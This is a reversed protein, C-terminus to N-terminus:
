AAEKHMPQTVEAAVALFSGRDTMQAQALADLAAYLAEEAQRIFHRARDPRIGSFSGAITAADAAALSLRSAKSLQLRNM